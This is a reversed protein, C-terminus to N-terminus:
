MKKSKSPAPSKKTSATKPRAKTPTAKPGTKKAPASKPATKKAPPTVTTTAPPQPTVPPTKGEKSPQPPVYRYIEPYKAQEVSEDYEEGYQEKYTGPLLPYNKGAEGIAAAVKLCQNFKYDPKVGDKPFSVELFSQFRSFVTHLTPLAYRNAEEFRAGKIEM